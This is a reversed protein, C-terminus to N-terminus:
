FCIGGVALGTMSPAGLTLGVSAIVPVAAKFLWESVFNPLLAKIFSISEDKM